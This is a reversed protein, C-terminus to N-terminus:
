AARVVPWSRPPTSPSARRRASSSSDIRATSCANDAGASSFSMANGPPSDFITLIGGADITLAGMDFPGALLILNAMGSEVHVGSLNRVEGGGLSFTGAGAGFDLVGGKLDLVGGNLNYAGVSQLDAAINLGPTSVAGGNQTFTGSGSKGVVFSNNVTTTQGASM